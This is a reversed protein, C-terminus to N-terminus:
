AQLLPKQARCVMSKWLWPLRGANNFITEKFGESELLSKITKQSFFKIHGGEWNVTFHKDWKNAISLTLNKLYGHYPTTLIIYGGPRLVSFMNKVFKQPYYLHEIVESSIVIDVNDVITTLDDYVSRVEFKINPYAKQAIAIGDEAVDIGIVEYGREAMKGVVFGNGCGADLISLKREKPLLKIIAPLVYSHALDAHSYSWGYQKVGHNSAM